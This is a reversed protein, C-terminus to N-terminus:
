LVSVLPPIPFLGLSQADSENLLEHGVATLRIMGSYSGGPGPCRPSSAVWRPELWIFHNGLKYGSRTRRLPPLGDM